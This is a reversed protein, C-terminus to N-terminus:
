HHQLDPDIDSGQGESLFVEDTRVLCAKAEQSGALWKVLKWKGRPVESRAPSIELLLAKAKSTSRWMVGFLKCIM